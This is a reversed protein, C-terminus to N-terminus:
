GFCTSYLWQSSYVCNNCRTPNIESNLRFDKLQTFQFKKAHEPAVFSVPVSGNLSGNNYTCYVDVHASFFLTIWGSLCEPNLFTQLLIYLPLDYDEPLVDSM